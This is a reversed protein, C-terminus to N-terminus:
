FLSNIFRVTQKIFGIIKDYWGTQVVAAVQASQTDPTATGLERESEVSTEPTQTTRAVPETEVHVIPAPAPEPESVEPTTTASTTATVVGSVVSVASSMATAGVSVAPSDLGGSVVGDVGDPSVTQDVNGDGDLDLAIDSSAGGTITFSAQTSTSVTFNSYSSVIKQNDGSLTEVFVTVDGSGTGGMAFTYEGDDPLILYKADGVTFYSSGPIDNTVTLIDADPDQGPTIGTYNGHQDTVGLTVPSHVNVILRDDEDNPEWKTASIYESETVTKNKLVDYILGQTPNVSVVDKHDTDKHSESYLKLNFYYKEEGSSVASPYVVAGDGETTFLARYINNAREGDSDGEKNFHYTIGKITPLGWGAVQVVRISSPFNFSDYERHWDRAKTVLGTELVEPVKYKKDNPARPIFAATLFNSMDLFSTTTDGYTSWWKGLMRSAERETEPQVFVIVPDLVKEFYKESPLLHHSVDITKGLRRADRKSILTIFGGAVTIESGEGHLLGTMARPTGLQPSAVMVFNDVLGEKGEDILRKILAKGVLGGYSHMVMTVKGTRSEEALAEIREVFDIVGETTTAGHEAIYDPAYRWDYALPEWATIASATQESSTATLTNMFDTFPQYIPKLSFNNLVGDVVVNDTVPEGTEDFVLKAFYGDAQHLATPWLTNGGSKLRSGQLGPLFVVSSCCVEGENEEGEGEEGGDDSIPPPAFPDYSLWNSFEVLGVAAVGGGDPNSSHQPGSVSGWWNRVADFTKSSHNHIATALSSYFASRTISFSDGGFVRVAPGSGKFQARSVTTTGREQVIVGSNKFDSFEAYEVTAEGGRNTLFAHSNCFGFACSFNKGFYRATINGLSVTGGESVRIGYVMDGAQPTTSAGDNDTDGLVTDDRLSTFIVKEVGEAADGVVLRAGGSVSFLVDNDTESLGKVVVGPDITFLTDDKLSVNHIHYPVGDKVLRYSDGDWLPGSIFVSGDGTNGGTNTFMLSDETEPDFHFSSSSLTNNGFEVEGNTALLARKVGSFTSSAIVASGGLVAFGVDGGRVTSSAVSLSGGYLRVFGSDTTTAVSVNELTVVGDAIYLAPGTCSDHTCTKVAGGYRVDTNYVRVTSDDSVLIKSWDGQSPTTASGNENSDGGVSDDYLSTITVPTGTATGVTIAGGNKVQVPREGYLKVVTGPRVVVHAGSVIMNKLIYVEGDGGVTMDVDIVGSLAGRDVLEEESLDGFIFVDPSVKEVAEEGTAYDYYRVAAKYYGPAVAGGNSSAGDWTKSFASTTANQSFFKVDTSGDCTTVVEPCIYLRTFYFEQPAEVGITIEGEGSLDEFSFMFESPTTTAGGGSGDDEVGEGGEGDGDGGGDSGQVSITYAGVEEVADEEVEYRYYRSVVTYVGEEVEEDDADTGDWERSASTSTANIDFRKVYSSGDCVEAEFSCIYLRTFRVETPATVSITMPEGGQVFSVNEAVGDFSVGTYSSGEAFVAGPVIFFLLVVVTYRLCRM